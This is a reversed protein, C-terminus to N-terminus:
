GDNSGEIQSRLINVANEVPAPYGPGPVGLEDLARRMADLAETLASEAAEARKRMKRFLDDNETLLREAAELRSAVWEWPDDAETRSNLFRQYLEAAAKRREGEGPM